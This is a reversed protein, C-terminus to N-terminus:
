TPLGRFCDVNIGLNYKPRFTEARYTSFFIAGNGWRRHKRTALPRQYLKGNKPLVKPFNRENNYDGYLVHLKLASSLTFHGLAFDGEDDQDEEEIEPVAEQVRLFKAFSWPCMFSKEFADKGAYKSINKRQKITDVRDSLTITAKRSFEIGNKLLFDGNRIDPRFKVIKADLCALNLVSCTDGFKPDVKVLEVEVVSGVVQRGSFYDKVASAQNLQRDFIRVLFNSQFRPGQEIQQLIGVMVPTTSWAWEYGIVLCQM